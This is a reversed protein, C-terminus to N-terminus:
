VLIYTYINNSKLYEVRSIILTCTYIHLNNLNFYIIYYYSYKVSLSMERVIAM